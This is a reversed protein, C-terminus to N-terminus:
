QPREFSANEAISSKKGPKSTGLSPGPQAQQQEGAQQNILSQTVGASLQGPIVASAIRFSRVVYPNIRKPQADYATEVMSRMNAYAAPSVAKMMDAQDRTLTGNRIADTVSMPDTMVRVAKVFKEEDATPPGKGYTKPRRKQLESVINMYQSELEKFKGDPITMSGAAQLFAGRADEQDKILDDVYTKATEVDPRSTKAYVRQAGVKRAISLAKNTAVAELFSATRVSADYFFMPSMAAITKRVSGKGGRSAVMSILAVLAPIPGGAAMSGVVAPSTMMDIVEEKSVATATEEAAEAVGGRAEAEAATAVKRVAKRREANAARAVQEYFKAGEPTKAFDKMRAAVIEEEGALFYKKTLAHQEIAGAFDKNAADLIASASQELERIGGKDGEGILIRLKEKLGRETAELSEQKVGAKLVKGALTVEQAARTASLSAEKAADAQASGGAV